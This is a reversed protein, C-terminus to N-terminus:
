FLVNESHPWTQALAALRGLRRGTSRLLEILRSSLLMELELPRLHALPDSWVEPAELSPSQSAAGPHLGIEVTRCKEGAALFRTLLELDVEGAHVTGFFGEPSVHRQTHLMARFRRAFLQKACGLMWKECEFGARITTQFIAPECATRVARIGFKKMLEPILNKVVPLLEIYQHGNLHTPRLRHDCVLQIQLELEEHIASRLANGWAILKAFLVFVGPFRGERDLLKDPYRNGSLPRGETLNLHVGLDFKLPMDFLTRRIAASPLKGATLEAELLKWQQLAEFAAPGNALLATSTLPGYRFGRFIGENVARNLGLDDAHLILFRVPCIDMILM